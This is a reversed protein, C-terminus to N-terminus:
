ELNKINGSAFEETEQSYDRCTQQQGLTKSFNEVDEM